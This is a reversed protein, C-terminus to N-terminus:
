AWRKDLQAWLSRHWPDSPLCLGPKELTPSTPATNQSRPSDLLIFGQPPDWLSSRGWARCVGLDQKWGHSSFHSQLSGPAELLLSGLAPCPGRDSVGLLRCPEPPKM